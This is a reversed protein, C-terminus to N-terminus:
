TRSRLRRTLRSVILFLAIGTLIGALTGRRHGRRPPSARDAAASKESGRATDRSHTVIKNTLLEDLRDGFVQEGAESSM